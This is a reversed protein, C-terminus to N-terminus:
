IWGRLGVRAIWSEVNDAFTWLAFLFFGPLVGVEWTIVLRLVIPAWRPKFASHQHSANTKEHYSRRIRVFNLKLYIEKAWFIIFNLFLSANTKVVGVIKKKKWVFNEAQEEWFQEPNDISKKYERLYDEYSTITTM